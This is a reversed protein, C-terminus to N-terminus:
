FANRAQRLAWWEDFSEARLFPNWWLEMELTTSKDLDSLNLASYYKSDLQMCFDHNKKRYDHGVFIETSIPFEKIEQLSDHLVEPNCDFVRGCGLHFLLDGVFLFNKRKEHYVCHSKTHGPLYHAELQFNEFPLAGELVKHSIFPPAEETKPGVVPVKFKKLLGEVGGIHDQHYHTCLIGILNLNKDALNKLYLSEDLPDVAIAEGKKNHLVYGWNDTGQQFIQTFM